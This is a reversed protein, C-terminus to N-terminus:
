AKQLFDFTLSGIKTEALMQRRAQANNGCAAFVFALVLVTLLIVFRKM